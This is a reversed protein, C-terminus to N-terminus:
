LGRYTAALELTAGDDGSSLKLIQSYAETTAPFQGTQLLRAAQHMEKVAPQSSPFLSLLSSAM